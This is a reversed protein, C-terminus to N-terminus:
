TAELYVKMIATLVLTLIGFSFYLAQLPHGGLIIYMEVFVWILLGFGAIASFEASLYHRKFLMISAFVHTGGVVFFLIVGPWFYSTFPSGALSSLPMGLGNRFILGYGGALATIGILLLFSALLKSIIFNTLKM